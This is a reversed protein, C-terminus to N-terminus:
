AHQAVRRTLARLADDVETRLLWMGDRLRALEDSYLQQAPGSWVFHAPQQPLAACFRDLLEAVSAVIARQAETAALSDPTDLVSSM